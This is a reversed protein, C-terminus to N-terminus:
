KNINWQHCVKGDADVANVSISNGTVVVDLRQDSSNVVVPFNKGDKGAPSMKWKHFHASFTVDVGAKELVPAFNETIWKQSYWGSKYGLPPIHILCIKIPASAFEPKLVESKLWELEAQRYADYDATGGYECNNDPKDEGADLVIFAAPGQRFSYYYEGNPTPFLMKIKDSDLGRGEHNGKAFVVPVNGALPTIPAFTHRATTDLSQAKSVIDGNLVLFDTNDQKIGAALKSFLADNCHIDNIMSFRCETAKHNLTRVCFAKRGSIVRETGYALRYPNSGDTLVKGVIRYRYSTGPQLGSFTVCHYRSIVRKGYRSEYVHQRECSEFATGDNPAIEVYDLSPKETVWLISFGNESINHVWPGYQMNSASASLTALLLAFL